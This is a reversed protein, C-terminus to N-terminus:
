ESYLLTELERQIEAAREDSPLVVPTRYETENRACTLVLVEQGAEDRATEDLRMIRRRVMLLALVYRLDGRSADGELQEFYQLLVESPALTAKKVGSADPMQSKWCGLAGDPPGQWGEESFDQRVVDAGRQVLASYFREGPALDRGLAACRRTCRQIDFDLV